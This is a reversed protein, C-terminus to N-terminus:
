CPRWPEVRHTGPDRKAAPCDLVLRVAASEHHNHTQRQPNRPLSDWQFGLPRRPRHIRSRAALRQLRRYRSAPLGYTQEGCVLARREPHARLRERLGLQVWPPARTRGARVAACRHHRPRHGVGRLLPPAPNALLPAPDERRASGRHFPGRQCRSDFGRRHRQGPASSRSPRGSEGGSSPSSRPSSPASSGAVTLTPTLEGKSMCSSTCHISKSAKMMWFVM